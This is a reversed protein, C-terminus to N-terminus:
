EEEVVALVNTESIIDYTEDGLEVKEGWSFLVKDGVKFNLEGKEQKEKLKPGIEEVIGMNRPTNEEKSKVYIGSSLKKEGEDKKIRKVLVRDALPQIKMDRFLRKSLHIIKYFCFYQLAFVIKSLNKM